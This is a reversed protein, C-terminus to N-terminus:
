LQSCTFPKITYSTTSIKALYSSYHMWNELLELDNNIVQGNKCDGDGNCFHVLPSADDPALGLAKTWIKRARKLIKAHHRTNRCMLLCHFHDNESEEKEKVSVYHVPGRKYELSRKFHNWFRSVYAASYLYKKNAPFRLDFRLIFFRSGYMFTLRDYIIQLVDIRCPLKKYAGTNIPLSEFHSATTIKIHM